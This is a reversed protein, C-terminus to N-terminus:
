KFPTYEIKLTFRRGMQILASQRHENGGPLSYRTNFLNQVHFSFKLRPVLSRTFLHLNALFYADTNENKLTRRSSEYFLEASLFFHRLLPISLGSKLLHSPSNTLPLPDNVFQSEQYNYNIYGILGNALRVNLEAEIGKSKVKASNFFQTLETVKDKVPDILDLFSFKYLSFVGNIQKSFCHELVFELTRIKEGKLTPNAVSDGEVEYYLEYFNPARFANGYLLKLTTQQYPNYIIAARPNLAQGRDTFKDYRASLTFSLNKQIQLEDQIYCSWQAFPKDLYFQVGFDDWYIYDSQCNNKYEIGLILRNDARIDWGFQGEFGYWLGISKDEQLFTEDGESYPYSGKYYYNGYYHRLTVKTNYTIDKSYKLEIASQTDISKERPDNFISEFSATPIKKGRSAVMGQFSFNKYKILTFFSVYQDKDIDHAMGNNINIKDTNWEKFYYDQGKIQGIYASLFVDLGTKFEKGWRIGTQLAGFNGMQLTTKIGDETNGDKTILNIVALMANTGYLASSPGRVIEVREIADLDLGLQTGFFSSGYVNEAMSVGNILVLVRNNYDTPRSFGRVGVYSYNHDNTLYFGRVKNIIDDITRYGFQEIEEATIITVSAPAQNLTQFYKSATNTKVELLKKLLDEDMDENNSEYGFVPLILLLLCSVLWLRHANMKM